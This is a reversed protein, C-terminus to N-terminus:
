RPVVPSPDQCRAQFSAPAGYTVAAVAAKRPSTEPQDQPVFLLAMKGHTCGTWTQGKWMLCVESDKDASWGSHWCRVHSFLRFGCIHSLKPIAQTICTVTYSCKMPIQEEATVLSSKHHTLMKGPLCSGGDQLILLCSSTGSARSTERCCGYGPLAQEGPRAPGHQSM